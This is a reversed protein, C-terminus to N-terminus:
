FPSCLNQNILFSVGCRRLVDASIVFEMEEAGPALLVLASKGMKTTSYFKFPIQTLNKLQFKIQSSFRRLLTSRVVNM